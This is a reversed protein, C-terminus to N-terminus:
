EFLPIDDLFAVSAMGRNRHSLKRKYSNTSENYLEVVQCYRTVQNRVKPINMYTRPVYAVTCTMTGEKILCLKIAEETKDKVTVVCKVLRLVDNREVHEGCCEHQCCSRDNESASLGVIELDPKIVNDEVDNVDDIGNDGVSTM